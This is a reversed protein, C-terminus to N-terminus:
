FDMGVNIGFMDAKSEPQWVQGGSVAVPASKSFRMGEYFLSAKVRTWKLGAEAFVSAKNGPEVTVTSLGIVSLDVKNRNSVPLKVGTEAFAKLQESFTHNGHIGLRAYFSWWTEEYGAAYLTDQIDRQWWRYGLGAFPELFSKEAVMFKWGLNGEIKFGAYNTDTKVPTGSQTQGDYDVTGGFLEGRGRLVLLETIDSRVSAGMASILGSEKLLQSGSDDYEKWTFFETKLYIDANNAAAVAPKCFLCLSFVVFIMVLFSHKIKNKSKM